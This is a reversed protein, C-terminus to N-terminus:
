GKGACLRPELTKSPKLSIPRRMSPWRKGPPSSSSKMPMVTASPLRFVAAFSTAWSTTCSSMPRYKKLSKWNTSSTSLPLSAVVPAALARRLVERKSASSAATGKEESTTSILGETYQPLLGHGAHGARRPASEVDFRSQSRLRNPRSKGLRRWPRRYTPRRRRNGIDARGYIAFKRM